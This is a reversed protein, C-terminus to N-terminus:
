APATSCRPRGTRLRWTSSGPCSRSPTTPPPRARSGSLECPLWAYGAIRRYAERTLGDAEWEDAIALARQDVWVIAPGLPKGAGDLAVFTEGQSSFGIAAVREARGDAQELVARSGEAAASLYEEAPMEAWDPQPTRHAYERTHLGRICGAGDVLATKLATTGLDFTLYLPESM